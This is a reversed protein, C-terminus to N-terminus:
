EALKEVTGGPNAILVRSVERGNYLVGIGPLRPVLFAEPTQLGTEQERSFIIDRHDLVGCSIANYRLFSRCLLARM